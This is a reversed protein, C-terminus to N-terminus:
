TQIFLIRGGSRVPHNPMPTGAAVLAASNIMLWEQQFGSQHAGAGANKLALRTTSVFILRAPVYSAMVQPLAYSTIFVEDGGGIM